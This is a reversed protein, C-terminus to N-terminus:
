SEGDIFREYEIQNTDWLYALLHRAADTDHGEGTTWYWGLKKLKGDTSFRKIDRSQLTVPIDNKWCVYQVAGIIWMAIPQRSKTVTEMTIDFREIVVHTVQQDGWNKLVAEVYQVFHLWHEHTGHSV